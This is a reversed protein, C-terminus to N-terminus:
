SVEVVAALRQRVRWARTTVTSVPVGTRIAVDQCTWGQYVLLEFVTQLESSLLGVAQNLRDALEQYRLVAEPSEHDIGESTLPSTTATTHSWARKLKHRAIGHLWAPLPAIAIDFRSANQWMAMMTDNLVEDVLEQQELHRSLYGRLRPAYQTYLTEFAQPDRMAVRRMLVVDDDPTAGSSLSRPAETASTSTFVPSQQDFRHRTM